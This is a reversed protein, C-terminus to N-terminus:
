LLRNKSGYRSQIFSGNEINMATLWGGFGCGTDIIINKDSLKFPKGSAQCTHGSVITKGSIHTHEDGIQMNTAKRWLLVLDGQEEIAVNPLPTAHVFIHTDTIHYLPMAEILALHESLADPIILDSIDEELLREFYMGYSSLTQAGGNSLWMSTAQLRRLPNSNDFATQMMMEHNGKLTIVNCRAKLEVILDLVGKSDIGRDIYDGLFILTDGIKPNIAHILQALELRCGHVDGIAFVRLERQFIKKLM